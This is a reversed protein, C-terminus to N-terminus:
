PPVKSHSEKGLAPRLNPVQPGPNLKHGAEMQTAEISNGVESGQTGCRFLLVTIVRAEFRKAPNPTLSLKM